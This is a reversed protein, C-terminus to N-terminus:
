SALWESFRTTGTPPLASYLVSDKLAVVEEHTLVVDDLFWGLMTGLAYTVFAPAGMLIVNRHVQKAIREVVERYTFIEPGAADMIRSDASAGARVALDALDEVFIPQILYEGSGAMMFIPFTRV